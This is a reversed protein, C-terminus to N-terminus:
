LWKWISVMLAPDVTPTGRKKGPKAKAKKGVTKEVPATEMLGDIAPSSKGPIEVRMLVNDAVLTVFEMKLQTENVAREQVVVDDEEHEEHEEHRQKELSAFADKSTEVCNLYTPFDYNPISRLQTSIIIVFESLDELVCEVANRLTSRGTKLVQTFLLRSLRSKQTAIYLAYAPYRLRLLAEKSNMSYRVPEHSNSEGSSNPTSFDVVNHQILTLLSNRVQWFSLRTSALIEFIASPGKRLISAAVLSPITGLHEKLLAEILDVAPGSLSGDTMM